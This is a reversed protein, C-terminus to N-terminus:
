EDNEHVFEVFEDLLVPWAGDDEYGDFNASYKKSFDLFQVWTDKSIANKHDELFELWKDIYKYKDAFLLQWFAIATDKALSKQNEGRAFNFTFLYIEKFTAPDDLASRMQPIAARMQEITDCGLKTWGDIWGERKFECMRECKLHFSLILTVVDMPDVNLDTCLKETGELGIIDEDMEKYIDFLKNLRTKDVKSSSSATARQKPKPPPPNATLDQFYADCAQELKWGARSLYAQATKEDASTFAAFQTAKTRQTANM